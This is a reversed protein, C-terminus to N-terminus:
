RWSKQHNWSVYKTQEEIWKFMFRECEQRLPKDLLRPDSSVVYYEFGDSGGEKATMAIPITRKLQAYGATRNRMSEFWRIDHRIKGRISNGTEGIRVGRKPWHIEAYVGACTPLESVPTGQGVGWSVNLDIGAFVIKDPDLGNM